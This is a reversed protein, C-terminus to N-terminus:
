LHTLAYKQFRVWEMFSFELVGQRARTGPPKPIQYIKKGDFKYIIGYRQAAVWTTSDVSDFHCKKIVRFDTMGLGHIQCNRKHAENIFWPFYKYETQKIHKVAIGGLAIYSYENCLRFFEEQGRMRHWVPICPLGVIRELRARYEKVKEYGVVADIDLELFRKIGLRRIYDAYQELYEDWNLHSTQHKIFTFAGSDLLFDKFYPIIPTYATKNRAYFFSSLAYIKQPSATIVSQVRNILIEIGALYIRM